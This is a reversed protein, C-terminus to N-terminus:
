EVIFATTSPSPDYNGAGDLSRASAEYRGPPIELEVHWREGAVRKFFTSETRTWQSGDWFTENDINRLTLEVGRMAQNDGCTGFVIVPSKVTTDRAPLKLLTEPEVADV